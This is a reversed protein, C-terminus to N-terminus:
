NGYQELRLGQEAPVHHAGMLGRGWKSTQLLLSLAAASKSSLSGSGAGPPSMGQILAQTTGKRQHTQQHRVYM